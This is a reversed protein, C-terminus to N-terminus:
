HLNSKIIDLLGAPPTLIIGAVSQAPIYYDVTLSGNKIEVEQQKVWTAGDHKESAFFISLQKKGTGEKLNNLTVSFAQDFRSNNVLIIGENTDVNIWPLTTLEGSTTAEVITSNGRGLGMTRSFLSWTKAQPLLEAKNNKWRYFGMQKVGIGPTNFDVPELMYYNAGALDQNIFHIFQNATYVIAQTGLKYPSKEKENSTYNWETLFMQMKPMGNKELIKRYNLSSPEEHGYSHYSIFSLEKKIEPIQLIAQLMTGAYKPNDAVLGGLPMVKGDNKQADVERVAKITHKAIEIYQEEMTKGSNKTHNFVSFTPENWIELYDLDDRFLSYLKKVIDEYVEWNKPLGYPTGSYTLWRPAYDVIGMTKLGRERAYKFRDRAAKIMTQNWQSPDQINNKNNKYDEITSNPVIQEIFFDRRIMTVGVDEVKDWADQHNLLPTHAGGYILPSAVRKQKSFDVTVSVPKTMIASLINKENEQQIEALEQKKQYNYAVRIAMVIAMLNIFFIVYLLVRTKKSKKKYSM